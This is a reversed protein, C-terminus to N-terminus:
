EAGHVVTRRNRLSLVPSLSSRGMTTLSILVDYMFRYMRNLEIIWQFNYAYQLLGSRHINTPGKRIRVIGFHSVIDNVRSETSLNSKDGLWLANVQVSM